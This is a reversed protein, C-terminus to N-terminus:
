LVVFRGMATCHKFIKVLIVQLKRARPPIYQCNVITSAQKGITEILNDNVVKLGMNLVRLIYSNLRHTQFSVTELIIGARKLNSTRLSVAQFHARVKLSKTKVKGTGIGSM